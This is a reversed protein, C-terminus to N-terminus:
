EFDIKWRFFLRPPCSGAAPKWTGDGDDYAMPVLNEDSWDGLDETALVTVTAGETNKPEPITVSPNGDADFGIDIWPRLLEDPGLDPHIDFVYRVGAPIGNVLEEPEPEYAIGADKLWLEYASFFTRLMPAGDAETIIWTDIFDFVPFSAKDTMDDADLPAIGAYAASGRPSSTGSAEMQGNASTDYYSNSILGTGNAQGVFAGRYTDTADVQGSCWSAAIRASSAVFGAFGGVYSGGAEVEAEAYCDMISGGGHNGIFGGTNPRGSGNAVSVHVCCRLIAPSDATYGVFGGANYTATNEIWGDFSCGDVLSKSDIKGAFGGVGVDSGSGEYSGTVDGEAQVGSVRGGAIKGFLGAYRNMTDVSFGSIKHNRGYFEGTFAHNDDGIPEITAGEFDIDAVLVYRGALDNRVALLDEVSAIPTLAGSRSRKPASPWGASRAQVDSLMLRGGTIETSNGCFLRLGNAYASAACNTITGSGRNGVFSGINGGTGWVAGSSWCDDITASAHAFRGVFGGYDSGASRVDGRAVCHSITAPAYVYGVFGGVFGNGATFGDARCDVIRNTASGGDCSGILGGAYSGTAAVEVAASCNSVITGGRVRGVLGGVYQKGAVTGSVSVSDITANSACGFLGRCSNGSPNNTCVLNRIAHGNGHFEGTFPASDTGIPTWDAGGLDIDAGLAYSGALNEAIAELGERTTVLVPEAAAPAAAFAFLLPLLSRPKM